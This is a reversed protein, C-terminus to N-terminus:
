KILNVIEEPTIGLAPRGYQRIPVSLGYLHEKLIKNIQNAASEVVWVEKVKKMLKRAEKGPFPNITIPRFLGVKKKEKRLTRVAEKAAAGVIGHAVIIVEADDCKFNEFETIKKAAKEHNKKLNINVEYIEEELDYCNRLNTYGKALLNEAPTCKTPRKLLVESQMKGLYGDTLLFTPIKYTWATNFCKITYDYIEQLTSPSYVVRYGESNGGWGTLTVEQQGYIVSGTSPGGRQVIVGVFPIQMAEAMSVADQMLVNGPGATATFAKTGALCAGIVSFGASMEDECQIFKTNHKPQEKVWTHMIESGPTIPYGFFAEAGCALAAKVIIENGILFAKEAM